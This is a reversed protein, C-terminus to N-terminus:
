DNVAKPASLKELPEPRGYLYGQLLDCGHEILFEAQERTEVGEACITLDLHKAMQIITRTILSSRESLGVRDVFQKDIKLSDIRIQTLYGLSSYGTGFDDLAILSGMRRINKFFVNAINLNELYASETIEFEISSPNIGYEAFVSALDTALGDDKLDHVSLNIAVTIHNTHIKELDPLDLCARKVVWKTISSVKGSQEAIPIFEAPSIEGLEPHHWRVLAEYGCVNKHLDVKPQYHLRFEDHLLAHAISNAILVKRKNNEMMDTAFVTFQGRGSMKSRYMAVDANSILDSLQFDADSARAIGISVGVQVEWQEVMMPKGLHDILRGAIAVLTDLEPNDHLLILFEDGGLRALLDGERILKKVDRAISILLKDGVDHGFSDNVLKFGDLDFFMLALDSGERKARALELRLSEMFFQRNPLGTLADFNALKEMQEQQELLLQTQQKNKEMEDNIDQMMSNFDRTLEAIERKGDVKTTLGYDKTQKIKHTFSALAFLPNLVQNQLAIMLLVVVLLISGVVPLARSFLLAKARALPGALDNVIVLYGLPLSIDGIRKVAIINGQEVGMGISRAILQAYDPEALSALQEATKNATTANGIYPQILNKDSDYVAAYKVNEYQDLRLLLTTIQFPDPGDALSPIMDSAMNESLGNLDDTASDRYFSEYMGVTFWLIATSVSVIALVIIATLSSRLSNFLM